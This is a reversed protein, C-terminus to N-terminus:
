NTQVVIPVTFRKAWTAPPSAWWLISSADAPADIQVSVPLLQWDAPVTENGLAKILSELGETTAPVATIYAQSAIVPEPERAAPPEAERVIGVPVVATPASPALPNGRALPAPEPLRPLLPAPDIMPQRRAWAGVFAVAAASRQGDTMPEVRLSRANTNLASIRGFAKDPAARLRLVLRGESAAAILQEPTIAPLPAVKAIVPDAPTTDTATPTETAPKAAVDVPAREPEGPTGTNSLTPKTTTSHALDTSSPRDTTDNALPGPPPVIPRKGPILMLVGGAILLVAAAAALPAGTRRTMWPRRAPLYTSIPLADVGATAETRALGVLAERELIAEVRDLLDSPASVPALSALTDRDARMLAALEALRPDTALAERLRAAREAPLPTGEILALLDTEDIGGPLGGAHHDNPNPPLTTV